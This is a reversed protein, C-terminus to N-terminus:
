PLRLVRGVTIARPDRIGNLDAIERWRRADGLERAAVSMLDDGDYTVTGATSAATARSHGGKRASRRNRAVAKRKERALQKAQQQLIRTRAARRRQAPSQRKRAEILDDAVYELLTVTAGQRTRNGRGNMIADGWELGDIVWRLSQYPIHGGKALLKVTPPQRGTRPLAMVELDRIQDEISRGVHHNDILISLAMRRAPQGVWSTVTSRRPRAVENWGGYGSSVDPREPGLRVVLTRAPDDCVIAVFGV